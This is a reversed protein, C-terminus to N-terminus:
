VDPDDGRASVSVFVGIGDFSAFPGRCVRAGDTSGVKTM